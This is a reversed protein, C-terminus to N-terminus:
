ATGRLRARLAAKKQERTWEQSPEIAPEASAGNPAEDKALAQMAVADRRRQRAAWNAIKDTWSAFEMELADQRRALMAIQEVLPLPADDGSESVPKAPNRRRFPWM